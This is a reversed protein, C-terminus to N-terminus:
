FKSRYPPIIQEGLLRKYARTIATIWLAPLYDGGAACNEGYNNRFFGSESDRGKVRLVTKIGVLGIAGSNGAGDGIQYFRIM